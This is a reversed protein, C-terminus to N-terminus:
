MICLLMIPSALMVFFTLLLFTAFLAWKRKFKNFYSDDPEQYRVEFEDEPVNDGGPSVKLRKLKETALGLTM